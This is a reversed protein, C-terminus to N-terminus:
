QKALQQQGAKAFAQANCDALRADDLSKRGSFAAVPGVKGAITKCAAGSFTQSTPAQAVCADGECVFMAGGAIFKTKEAVPSQLKATVPEAAFASGAALTTLAACAALFQLKM